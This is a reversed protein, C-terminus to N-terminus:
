GLKIKISKPPRKISSITLQGFNLLSESSKARKKVIVSRIQQEFSENLGNNEVNEPSNETKANEPM